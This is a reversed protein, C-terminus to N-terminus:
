GRVAMGSYISSSKLLGSMLEEIKTFTTTPLAGASYEIEVSGAAIRRVNGGRELDPSLVGPSQLERIAAECTAEILERPIEDQLVYAQSSADYVEYRPWELAQKRQNTRYSQLRSRFYGDIWKTARRLAQEIVDDEYPDGDFGVKIGYSKLDSVSVYSEATSLGAGTEVVIAM